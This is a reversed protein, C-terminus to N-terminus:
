QFKVTELTEITYKRLVSRLEDESINDGNYKVGSAFHVLSFLNKSDPQKIINRLRQSINGPKTVYLFGFDRDGNPAMYEKGLATLMKIAKKQEDENKEELWLVICPYHNLCEPQVNVDSSPGLTPWPFETENVEQEISEKGKASVQKGSKIELVLVHPSAGFRYGKRLTDQKEQEDFSLSAFPMAKFSEDYSAKDNAACLSLVDFSRDTDQLKSHFKNYWDIMTPLFQKCDSNSDDYFFLVLFKERFDSVAVENGNKLNVKADILNGLLTGAYRNTWPFKEGTKDALIDQNARPNTALGTKPDILVLRPIGQVDFIQSLKSKKKREAFPLAIWPM